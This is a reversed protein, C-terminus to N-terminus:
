VIVIKDERGFGRIEEIEGKELGNLSRTAVGIRVYVSTRKDVPKLLLYHCDGRAGSPSIRDLVPLLFVEDLLFLEAVQQEDWTEYYLWGGKALKNIYSSLFGAEECLRSPDVRDYGNTKRLPQTQLQVQYPSQPSNELIAPDDLKVSITYEKPTSLTKGEKEISYFCVDTPVPGGLLERRALMGRFVRGQIYLRGDTCLSFPHKNVYECSAEIVRMLATDDYPEVNSPLLPYWPNCGGASAWSWSPAVYEHSRRSKATVVPNWLLDALLSGSWLGALYTEKGRAQQFNSAIGGIAVLRDTEYTIQLKCYETVLERWRQAIPVDSNSKREHTWYKVKPSLYEIGYCQFSGTEQNEAFDGECECATASYCEWIM